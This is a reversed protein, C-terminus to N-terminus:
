DVKKILFLIKQYRRRRCLKNIAEALVTVTERSFMDVINKYIDGYQLYLRSLLRMRSRVIKREETVKDKKRRLSEFSRYGISLLIPDQKIYNDISNQQLTKLLEKSNDPYKELNLSNISIMPIMVNTGSGPFNLQHCAKSSKSYFEMCGTCM